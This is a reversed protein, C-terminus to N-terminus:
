EPVRKSNKLYNVIASSSLENKELFQINILWNEPEGGLSRSKTVKGRVSVHGLGAEVEPLNLELITGKPVTEHPAILTAHGPTVSRLYGVRTEGQHGKVLRFKVHSLGDKGRNKLKKKAHWLSMWQSLLSVLVTALTIAVLFTAFNSGDFFTLRQLDEM